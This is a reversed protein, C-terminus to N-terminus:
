KQYFSLQCNSDCFVRSPNTEEMQSAEAAGCTICSTVLLQTPEILRPPESLFTSKTPRFEFNRYRTAEDLYEFVNNYVQNVELMVNYRDRLFSDRKGAAFGFYTEDHLVTFSYLNRYEREEEEEDGYTYRQYRVYEQRFDLLTVEKGWTLEIVNLRLFKLTSNPPYIEMIHRDHIYAYQLRSVLLRYWLYYTKWKLPHTIWEIPYLRNLDILSLDRKFWYEWMAEEEM